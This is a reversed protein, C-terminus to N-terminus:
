PKAEVQPPAFPSAAVAAHFEELSSASNEKGVFEWATDSVTAWVAKLMDETPEAPVLRLGLKEAAELFAQVRWPYEQAKLAIMEIAEHRDKPTEPM